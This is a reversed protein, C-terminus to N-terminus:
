VAAEAEMVKQIHEMRRCYEQGVPKFFDQKARAAKRVSAIAEMVVSLTKLAACAGFGWENTQDPCTKECVDGLGVSFWAVPDTIFTLAMEIIKDFFAAFPVLAFIQGIVYTCMFYGYMEDCFSEPVGQEKVYDHLCVAKFCNIQRYKDLNYLIGPLCLCGLSLIISDKINLDQQKAEEKAKAPVDLWNILSKVDKCWPAGGGLYGEGVSGKGTSACNIVSCISDLFAIATKVGEGGYVKALNEEYNCFNIGTTVMSTGTAQTAGTPDPSRMLQAGTGKFFTALLYLINIVNTLLVKMWCTLEAYFMVKRLNSIWQASALEHEFARKIKNDLDTYLTPFPSNYFELTFNANVQQPRPSVFYRTVGGTTVARKSYVQLPCQINLNQVYYDKPELVMFLYPSQSGEVNNVVYVDNLNLAVDGVCDDPTSPGAITLTTIDRRPTTLDVRCSVLPPTLTATARDIVRPTCTVTPNPKWYRPNTENAIGYIELLAKTAARNKADDYFEFGIEATYPGSIAVLSEFVCDQTTSDVDTCTTPVTKNNGGIDDFNAFATEFEGSRVTYQVYNGRVAGGTYEVGAEGTIVKFDTTEPDKPGINDYVIQFTQPSGVLNGLDDSSGELLTITYTDEKIDTPPKVNWTCRWIEASFRYCANAPVYSPLGLESLDLFAQASMMGIGPGGTNDKDEIEIIINTDYGYLPLGGRLAAPEVVASGTIQVGTVTPAILTGTAESVIGKVIPPTDDAKITCSFERVAENGLTDKAKITLKCPTVETVPINVWTYLDDDILDPPIGDQISPALQALNASVQATDVEADDTIIANVTATREEGSHVHTLIFGAEDLITLKEITPATKDIKVEACTPTSQQNVYDKATICVKKKGATTITGQIVKDKSCEGMSGSDSALTETGSTITITKIGSCDEATGFRTGYDEIIYSVTIPGNSIPPDVHFEKIQPPINDPM